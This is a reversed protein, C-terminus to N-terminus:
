KSKLMSGNMSPWSMDSSILRPPDAACLVGALLLITTHTEIGRMLGVAAWLDARRHFPGAGGGRVDRDGNIDRRGELRGHEDVVLERVKDEEGGVVHM